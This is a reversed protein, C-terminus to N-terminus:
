KYTFLINDYSLTLPSSLDPADQKYRLISGGVKVKDVVCGSNSLGSLTAVQGNVVLRAEGNAPEDAASDDASFSVSLNKMAYSGTPLWATSVWVQNDDKADVRLSYEGAFNTRLIVTLVAGVNGGSEQQFSLLNVNTRPPPTGAVSLSFQARMDKAAAPSYDTLLSANIGTRPPSFSEPYENPVLDHLDLYRYNGFSGNPATANLVAGSEILATEDAIEPTSGQPLDFDTFTMQAHDLFAGAYRYMERISFEAPSTFPDEPDLNVSMAGIKTSHVAPLWSPPDAWIEQHDLTTVTTEGNGDATEYQVWFRLSWQHESPHGHVRQAAEVDLRFHEPEGDEDVAINPDVTIWQTECPSCIFDESDFVARAEYIEVGEYERIQHEIFVLGDLNLILRDKFRNIEGGSDPNVEVGGAVMATSSVIIEDTIDSLIPDQIPNSTTTVVLAQATQAQSELRLNPSGQAQWGALESLDSITSFDIARHNRIVPEEVIFIMTRLVESQRSETNIRFVMQDQRAMWFTEGPIYTQTESVWQGHSPESKVTLSTFDDPLFWDDEPRMPVHAETTNPALRVVCPDCLEEVAEAASSVLLM